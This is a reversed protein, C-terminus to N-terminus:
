ELADHGLRDLQVEGAADGYSALQSALESSVESACSRIDLLALARDVEVGELLLEDLPNGVRLPCVSCRPDELSDTGEGAVAHQRDIGEAEVISTGIDVLLQAVGEGDTSLEDVLEGLAAERDLLQRAADLEDEADPGVVEHLQCLEACSAPEPGLDDAGVALLILTLCGLDVHLGDGGGPVLGDVVCVDVQEARLGLSHRSRQATYVGDRYLGEVDGVLLGVAEGLTDCAVLLQEELLFTM